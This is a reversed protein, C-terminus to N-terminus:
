ALWNKFSFIVTTGTTTSDIDLHISQGTMTQNLLAIRDRTLKLGLGSASIATDFGPGNDRVTAVLDVGSQTFGIDLLGKEYQNSIGHKVANEIIPQLLLVPVEIAEKNLGPATEIHYTFGFRLQELKLYHDLMEIEKSLSTFDRQSEKLSDRLLTSFDTLYQNAGEMDNKTILGQISSLSNFVFHPNFQSRISKLEAQILQKQTHQAKLRESQRRTKLLLWLSCLALISGVVLLVKFWTTQYWAALIHFSYSGITQRQFAYRLLLNHDGPPLDKLWIINPDFNGAIWGSSDTGRVLNYEVQDATTVKDRLYFFLSNETSEFRKQLLLLNKVPKMETNGYYTAGDPKFFDHKWQYKNVTIFSQMTNATFVSIVAPARKIWVASITSATDPIQINRVEITLSNGIPANFEGLYAMVTQDKGAADKRFYTYVPCFHQIAQWDTVPTTRNRLVRFQYLSKNQPNIGYATVIISSSDFLPVAKKNYITSGGASEYVVARSIPKYTFSDLEPIHEKNNLATQTYLKRSHFISLIVENYSSKKRPSPRPAEYTDYIARIKEGDLPGRFLPHISDTQYEVQGQGTVYVLLFLLTHFVQKM